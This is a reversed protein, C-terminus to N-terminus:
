KGIVFGVSCIPSKTAAEPYKDNTDACGPYTNSQRPDGIGRVTGSLPQGNDMKRDLQAVKAPSLIRSAGAIGNSSEITEVLYIVYGIPQCGGWNNFSLTDECGGSGSDIMMTLNLKSLPHTTRAGAPENTIAADTVGSIMDAKYLHLWFRTNESLKSRVTGLDHVIYDRYLKHDGLTGDSAACDNCGVIRSDPDIMDGPLENYTSEFISLATRYSHVQSITAAMRAQDILQQGKLVGGILIGIITIVIALEVLTFGHYKSISKM